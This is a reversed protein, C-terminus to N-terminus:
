NKILKGTKVSKQGDMLKYFYVGNKLDSISVSKGSSTIQEMVRAGTVQYLVLTLNEYNEKWRFSVSETAPNPYVDFLANEIEKIDTSTGGSYYITTKGTEKWEGNINEISVSGIIQKNFSIDGTDELDGMGGV